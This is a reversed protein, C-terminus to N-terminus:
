HVADRSKLKKLILERLPNYHDSSPVVTAEIPPLAALLGKQVARQQSRSAPRDETLRKLRQLTELYKGPHQIALTALEEGAKAFAEKDGVGIEEPSEMRKELIRISERMAKFPDEQAVDAQKQYNGVTSIDGSLRKDEKIPPPDFGIRHVYIRASNKIDQLLKLASYQHPLSTEPQHLRLQLEADWMYAM